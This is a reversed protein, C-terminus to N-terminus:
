PIVPLLTVKKPYKYELVIADFRKTNKAGKACNQHVDVIPKRSKWKFDDSLFNRSHYILQHVWFLESLFHYFFQTMKKKFSVQYNHHLFSQFVSRRDRDCNAQNKKLEAMKWFNSHLKKVLHCSISFTYKVNSFRGGTAPSFNFIDCCRCKKHKWNWSQSWPATILHWYVKLMRSWKTLFAVSLNKFSPRTLSCDLLIHCPLSNKLVNQMM